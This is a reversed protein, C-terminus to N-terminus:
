VQVGCGGLCWSGETEGGAESEQLKAFSAIMELVEPPVPKGPVVSLGETLTIQITKNNIATVVIKKAM